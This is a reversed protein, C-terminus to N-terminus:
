MIKTRLLQGKLLIFPGMMYLWRGYAVMLVFCCISKLDLAFRKYIGLEQVVKPLLLKLIKWPVKSQVESQLLSFPLAMSDTLM